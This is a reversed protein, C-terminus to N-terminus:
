RLYEQSGDYKEEHSVEFSDIPKKKRKTREDVEEEEDEKKEPEDEPVDGKKNFEYNTLYLSNYFVGLLSADIKSSAIIEV